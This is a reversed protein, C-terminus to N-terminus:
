CYIKSMIEDYSTSLTWVITNKSNHVFDLSNYRGHQGFRICPGYIFYFFVCVIVSYSLAAMYRHIAGTLIGFTCPKLCPDGFCDRLWSIKKRLRRVYRFHQFPHKQQWVLLGTERDFLFASNFLEEGKKPLFKLTTNQPGRLGSNQNIACACTIIIKDTFLSLENPNPNSKLRLMMYHCLIAVIRRLQQWKWSVIKSELLCLMIMNQKGLGLPFMAFWKLGEKPQGRGLM